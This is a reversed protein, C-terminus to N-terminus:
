TLRDYCLCSVLTKETDSAVTGLWRKRSYAKKQKFHKPLSRFGFLLSNLMQLFDTNQVTSAFEELGM